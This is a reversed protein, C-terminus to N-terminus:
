SEEKDSELQHKLLRSLAVGIVTLARAHDGGHPSLPRSLEDSLADDSLDRVWEYVTM